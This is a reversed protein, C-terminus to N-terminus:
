NTWRPPPMPVTGRAGVQESRMVGNRLYYQHVPDNGMFSYSLGSSRTLLDSVTIEREVPVTVMDDVSGSGYVRM